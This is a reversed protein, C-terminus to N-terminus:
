LVSFIEQSERFSDIHEGTLYTPRQTETNTHQVGAPVFRHGLEPTLVVCPLGSNGAPSRV